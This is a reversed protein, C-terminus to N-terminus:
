KLIKDRIEKPPHDHFAHHDVEEEEKIIISALISVLLTVLIVILSIQVPIHVWGSILMKVGIFFLIFSIGFKLYRFLNLIGSLAFFLSRLGLIAFLNSTIAIFSDRTIALVAPISDIAFVIDTSELLILTIFAVTAYIQNNHKVFFHGSGVDTKVKFIRKSLKVFINHDPHIKEEKSFFMKFATFILVAGLIYFMFSFRKILEVGAIIFLIRFVIAGIIGWKLIRPQNNDAIGMMTFILIFVFLNDVSLSYEIIYGTIFEFSKHTGEPLFLYIASGFLLATSIWVSTWLLATKVKIKGKRHDTVYMDISFVIIFLIIFAIWFYFEVNM